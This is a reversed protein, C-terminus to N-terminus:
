RGRRAVADPSALLGVAVGAPVTPAPGPPSPVLRAALSVASARGEADLVALELAAKAMPHGVVDSLADAVDTAELGTACRQAAALLRPVLHDRLVVLAGGVHEATYTPEPLAACEGWGECEPGLVRVLVASRVTVTGHATAFPSVLPLDVVQMEVADIRM